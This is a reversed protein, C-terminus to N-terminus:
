MVMLSVPFKQLQIEINAIAENALVVQHYFLPRDLGM